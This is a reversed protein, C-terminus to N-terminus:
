YLMHGPSLILPVNETESYLYVFDYMGSHLRHTFMIVESFQCPGVQVRDGISLEEMTKVSGNELIVQSHAPFCAPKASAPEIDVDGSLGTDAADSMEEDDAFPTEEPLPTEQSNILPSSSGSMETGLASEDFINQGNSSVQIDAGKAKIWRIYGSVRTYVGPSNPLACSNGFSTIGVQVINEIEDYVFLAGGSDGYCSDCGGRSYGACVHYSDSIEAGAAALQKGCIDTPQIPVDVQLLIGADPRNTDFSTGYGATRTFAFDAPIADDSNLQVFKAWPPAATALKILRIDNIVYGPDDNFLPHLFSESINIKVGNRDNNGGVLVFDYGPYVPCHGATLVWFKSLLSGTCFSGSFKSNVSVMFKELGGTPAIGNVIRDPGSGSPMSVNGPLVIPCLAGGETGSQEAFCTGVLVVALTKFIWGLTM